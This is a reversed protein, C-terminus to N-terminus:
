LSIIIKKHFSRKQGRFNYNIKEVNELKKNVVQIRNKESKVYSKIHMKQQIPLKKTNNSVLNEFTINGVQLFYKVFNELYNKGIEDTQKLLIKFTINFKYCNKCFEKRCYQCDAQFKHHKWGCKTKQCYGCELVSLLDEKQFREFEKKFSDNKFIEM